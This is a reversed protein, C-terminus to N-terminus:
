LAGVARGDRRRIKVVEGPEELVRVAEVLCLGEHSARNLYQLREAPVGSMLMGEQLSGDLVILYQQNPHSPGLLFDIADDVVQKTTPTSKRDEIPELLDRFSCLM